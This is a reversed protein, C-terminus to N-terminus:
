KSKLDSTNFINRVPENNWGIGFQNFKWNGFLKSEPFILDIEWLALFVIYKKDLGRGQLNM